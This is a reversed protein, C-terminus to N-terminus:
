IEPKSRHAKAPKPFAEDSLRIKTYRYSSFENDRREDELVEAGKPIPLTYDAPVTLSVIEYKKINLSYSWVRQGPRAEHDQLERSEKAMYQALTTHNKESDVRLPRAEINDGFRWARRVMPLDDGTADIVCHVHWRQNESTLIEISTIDRPPPLGAAAREARLAKRFENICERVTKRQRSPRKHKMIRRLHKDDFGMTLVLGSRPTPFNTALLLELKRASNIINKQKSADSSARRKAARERPPERGTLRDCRICIMLSGAYFIKLQHLGAM